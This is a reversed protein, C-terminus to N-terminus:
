ATKIEFAAEPRLIGHGKAYKAVLLWGQHFISYDAEATVGLLSLTGSASPHSGFAVTTSFNGQYASPGTTVNTGPVNNTKVAQMGAVGFGIANTQIDGGQSTFDKDILGDEQVLLNWQAPKLFISRMEDPVNKESLNQEATFLSTVLSTGNTDADADTIVTGGVGDSVTASARAANVTVQASNSDATNALAYALEQAIPGRVDYHNMLQDIQAIFGDAILLDDVTIVREAHNLNQGVLMTGPTHYAATARGIAPFQASQGNSINRQMHATEIVLKNEFIAMIEGGFQKLFLADVDGSQNVQGVRDVTMNPAAM